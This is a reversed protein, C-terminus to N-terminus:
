EVRVKPNVFAYSIDVVLNVLVTMLAIFMM